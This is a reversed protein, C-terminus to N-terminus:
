ALEYPTQPSGLPVAIRVPNKGKWYSQSKVRYEYKMRRQM